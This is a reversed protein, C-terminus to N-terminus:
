WKNRIRQANWLIADSLREIHARCCGYQQTRKDPAHQLKITRSRKTHTSHLVHICADQILVTKEEKKDHNKHL